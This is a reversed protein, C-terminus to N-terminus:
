KTLENKVSELLLEKGMPNYSQSFFPASDLITVNGDKVARIQAWIASNELDKKDSETAIVVIHDADIDTLGEMSIMPLTIGDQKPMNKPRALKMDDNILTGIGGDSFVMFQGSSALVPLYTKEGNKEIVEKGLKTAKEDYKQLWSKTEEEKDFLRSVDTLKSRWDNAYDKMMVVPAIEKLQDYIKEQRQSMIILDPNVELIAEMDMTDMMSHGVIKVDKLEERIYSPLKDTEYSDVNATAIPKYGALLLEESSGSIDVIKKPNSPIKVEGKVSQVVRTESKDKDEANKDSCATVLVLTTIISIFIALSKIKKM